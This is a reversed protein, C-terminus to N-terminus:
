SYTSCSLSQYFVCVMHSQLSSSLLKEYLDEIHQWKIYQGNNQLCIIIITLVSLNSSANNMRGRVWLNRTCGHGFSHSFCNRTTKILHPVDSIFFISRKETTFPNDTKYSYKCDGEKGHMKFFKRNPSAGDATITLVKFGAGELRQICEWIIPYLQTCNLNKTPFHALPFNLRIFIGRVMLVLLHNAIPRGSKTNKCQNELEMDILENTISGLDIFGVIKGSFKDYVLSEKVSMEDVLVSVHESLTDIKAEKRLQEMVINQFGSQTQVNNSYDRLTRESPLHLFGSTRACHYGASSILKM